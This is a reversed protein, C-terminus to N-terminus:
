IVELLFQEFAIEVDVGSSRAEPLLFALKSACEQLKEEKFKSFDRKIIMDKVKWFLVGALEDLIVGKEVAQRFYIWLNLKDKMGFANALLFNNFKEKKEKSLEFARIETNADKFSELIVKNLTSELFIFTSSSKQMYELRELIFAGNDEYDFISNFIVVCKSFFLGGGSYLNEIQNRDFNNRNIEFIEVNSSISKLFKEYDLVKRKTDDGCFLYIM